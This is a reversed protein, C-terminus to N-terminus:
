EFMLTICPDNAVVKRRTYQKTSEDTMDVWNGDIEAFSRESVPTIVYEVMGGSPVGKVASVKLMYFPTSSGEVYVQSTSRVVVTFETVDVPTDLEVLHYGPMEITKQKSVIEEGFKGDHVEVTVTVGPEDTGIGVASLRGPHNYVSAVATEDGTKFDFAPMTCYTMVDSYADTIEYTLVYALPLEYSVWFFGGNGWESSNSSQMLWAGKNQPQITFFQAPFDDDWGVIVAEDVLDRSQVDDDYLTMYGNNVTAKDVASPVEVQIGGRQKVLDKLDQITPGETPNESFAEENAYVTLERLCFGNLCGQSFAGFVNENYGGYEEPDSSVNIGDQKEGDKEIKHLQSYVIDMPEVQPIEGKKMKYNSQFSTVAGYPFYSGEGRDYVPTGYGENILCYSKNEDQFPTFSNTDADRFLEDTSKPAETFSATKNTIINQENAEYTHSDSAQSQEGNETAVTKVEDKFLAYDDFQDEKSGCGSITVFILVSILLTTIIKKGTM